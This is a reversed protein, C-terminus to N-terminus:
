GIVIIEPILGGASLTIRAVSLPGGHRQQSASGPNIYLIGNAHTIDPRHTHGSVVIQIGASAPDLDLTALDHLLYIVKEGLSLMETAPLSRAWVAHDTNGRVGTVPALRQLTELVAPSGIDGAHLIHDVGDLAAYAETTLTGHTDSILGVIM